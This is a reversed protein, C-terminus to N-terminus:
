AIPSLQLGLRELGDLIQQAVESARQALPLRLDVAVVDDFADDQSIVLVRPRHPLGGLRSFGQACTDDHRPRVFVIADVDSIGDLHLAANADDAELLESFRDVLHKRLRVRAREDEVVLAISSPRSVRVRTAEKSMEVARESLQSSLHDGGSGSGFVDGGDDNLQFPMVSAAVQTEGVENLDVGMEKLAGQLAALSVLEEDHAPSDDAEIANAFGIDDPEESNAADGVADNTM